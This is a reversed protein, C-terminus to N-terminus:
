PRTLSHCFLFGLIVEKQGPASVPIPYARHTETPLQSGYHSYASTMLELIPKPKMRTPGGQGAVTAVSIISLSLIRLRQLFPSAPLTVMDSQEHRRSQERWRYACKSVQFVPRASHM